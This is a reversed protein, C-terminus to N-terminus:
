LDRSADPHCLCSPKIMFLYWQVLKELEKLNKQQLSIRIARRLKSLEGQRIEKLLVSKCSKAM